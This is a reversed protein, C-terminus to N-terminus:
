YISDSSTILRTIPNQERSITFKNDLEHRVFAAMDGQAIATQRVANM